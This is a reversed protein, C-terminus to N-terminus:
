QPIEKATQVVIAKLLWGIQYLFISGIVGKVIWRSDLNLLFPAERALVPAPFAYTWMTGTSISLAAFTILFIVIGVVDTGDVQRLYLASAGM